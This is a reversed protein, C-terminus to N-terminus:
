KNTVKNKLAQAFLYGDLEQYKNTISEEKLEKKIINSLDTSIIKYCMYRLMWTKLTQPSNIISCIDNKSTFDPLVIEQYAYVIEKLQENYINKLYRVQYMITSYSMEKNNYLNISDLLDKVDSILNKYKDEFKKSSLKKIASILLEDYENITYM